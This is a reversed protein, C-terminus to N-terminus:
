EDGLPRPQWLQETRAFDDWDLRPLEALAGRLGGMGDTTAHAQEASLPELRAVPRGRLTVVFEVGGTQVERLVASTRTKLERIGITRTAMAM